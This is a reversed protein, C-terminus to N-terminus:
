RYDLVSQSDLWDVAKQRNEETAVIDGFGQIPFIDRLGDIMFALGNLSVHGFDILMGGPESAKMDIATDLIHRLYCYVKKGRAFPFVNWYHGEFKKEEMIAIAQSVRAADGSRALAIISPFEFFPVGKIKEIPPAWKEALEFAEPICAIAALLLQKQADLGIPV